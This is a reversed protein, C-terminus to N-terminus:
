NGESVGRLSEALSAMDKEKTVIGQKKVSGEGDTSITPFFVPAIEAEASEKRAIVQKQVIRTEASVPAPAVGASIGRENLKKLEDLIRRQMSFGICDRCFGEKWAIGHCGESRCRPSTRPYHAYFDTLFQHFM